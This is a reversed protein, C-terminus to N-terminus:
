SAAATALLDRTHLVTNRPTNGRMLQLEYTRDTARLLRRVADLGLLDCRRHNITRLVDGPRIGARDAPSGPIVRFVTVDRFRPGKGLLFMGSADFAFPRGSDATRELIIRHHPYDLWVTFRRWVDAGIIGAVDTRTGYGGRDTSISTIVGNLRVGSLRLARVRFVIGQTEGGIGIGTTAKIKPEVAAPLGHRRAFPHNLSIAGRYGTDVLFRGTAAAGTGTIVTAATFAHGDAITVPLM